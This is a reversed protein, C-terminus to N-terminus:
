RGSSLSTTLERIMWRFKTIGPQFHCMPVEFVVTPVKVQTMGSLDFCTDFLSYEPARKLHAAGVRFAVRLAEYAPRTLQTVSTGSNIIVGGNGTRDLQFLSALIGRVLTGGVSIGLLEVYYFTDLKPNKLLPTFRAARSIVLNCFVM